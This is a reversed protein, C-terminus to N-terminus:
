INEIENEFLPYSKKIADFGEILVGDEIIKGAVALAMAIRHDNHASVTATHLKKGGEIIMNGNEYRINGGLKSFESILTAIRDSEKHKLREVNFIKSEGKLFLALVVLPPVLDPYDSADFQFPQMFSKEIYIKGDFFKIDAGIKKLFEFIVKDGQYSFLNLNRVIGGNSLAGLILWFAGNSWDGEIKWEKQYEKKIESIEFKEYNYNKLFVGMKEMIAITIDIYPKSQLNKAVIVNKNGLLPLSFLAGTLVQSTVSCDISINDVNLKKNKSELFFLNKDYDYYFNVGIQELFENIGDIPRKKLSNSVAIGIKDTLFSALLTFVRFSLGSEGANVFNEIDKTGTITITEGREIVKRGLANAWRLADYEDNCFSRNKIFIDNQYAVSSAIVRQIISKSAPMEIDFKHTSYQISKM